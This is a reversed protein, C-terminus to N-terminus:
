EQCKEQVKHASMYNITRLNHLRDALKIILVRIDKSMALFMKRLSEAERDEKREFVLKNLKTVGDVLLAVEEGFERKVDDYTYPTDEVADHLLGAVLTKEDMGLEALIKTVEIPHIVYEEGSKRLQGEHLEEAKRYARELLDIDYNPNIRLVDELFKVMRQADAM